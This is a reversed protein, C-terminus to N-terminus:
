YLNNASESKQAITANRSPFRNYFFLREWLNARRLQPSDAEIQRTKGRRTAVWVLNDRAEVVTWYKDVCYSYQEGYRSQRVNKARRGPHTSRKTM